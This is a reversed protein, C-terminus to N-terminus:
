LLFHKQVLMVMGAYLDRERIDATIMQWLLRARYNLMKRKM